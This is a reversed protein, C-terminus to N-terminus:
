HIQLLVHHSFFFCEVVHDHAAAGGTRCYSGSEGLVGSHLDSEQLRSGGVLVFVHHQLEVAPHLEELGAIVPVVRDLLLGGPVAEHAVRALTSPPHELWLEQM